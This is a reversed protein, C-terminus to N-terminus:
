AEFEESADLGSPPADRSSSSATSADKRSLGELEMVVHHRVMCQLLHLPEDENRGGRRYTRAIGYHSLHPKLQQRTLNYSLKDVKELLLTPISEKREHVYRAADAFTVIEDITVSRAEYNDSCENKPIVFRTLNCGDPAKRKRECQGSSTVAVEVEAAPEGACSHEIQNAAHLDEAANDFPQWRRLANVRDKIAEGYQKAFLQMPKEEKM